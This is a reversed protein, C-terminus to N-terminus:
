RYRRRVDLAGLRMGPRTRAWRVPEPLQTGGGCDDVNSNPSIPGPGGISAGLPSWFDSRADVSADEFIGQIPESTARSGVSLALRDGPRVGLSTAVSRPVWVGAPGGAAVAQVHTSAGSRAILQVTPATGPPTGAASGAVPSRSVAVTATTGLITVVEPGLGSVGAVLQRLYASRRLFLEQSSAGGASGGTVRGYATVTLGAEWRSAREIGGRLAASGASSLFLPAAATATGVVVASLFIALLLSPYRLPVLPARAWAADLPGPARVRVAEARGAGKREAGAVRRAGM